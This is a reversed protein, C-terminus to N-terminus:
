NTWTESQITPFGSSENSVNPVNWTESQITPFGSSELTIRVFRVLPATKLTGCIATSAIPSFGLM